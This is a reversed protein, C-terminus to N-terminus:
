SHDYLGGGGGGGELVYTDFITGTSIPNLPFSPLNGYKCKVLLM